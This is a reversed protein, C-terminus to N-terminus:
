YREVDMVDEDKGEEVGGVKKERRVWAVFEDIVSPWSSDESWFGLSPDRLTERAFTLTQRWLDKNVAKTTQTSELFEFWWERWAAGDGADPSSPPTEWELGPTTFLMRWFEVAMERPVTKSGPTLMLQFTHTYVKKFAATDAQLAARRQLVCNRMRTLLTSADAGNVGAALWGDIFADRSVRGLSPSQVIESFILAGIDDLPIQLDTLLDSTGAINLDDPEHLPNDRYKDFLGSLATRTASST